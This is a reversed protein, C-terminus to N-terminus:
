YNEQCLCLMSLVPLTFHEM